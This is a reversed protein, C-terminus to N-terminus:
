LKMCVACTALRRRRKSSGNMSWRCSDFLQQHACAVASSCVM